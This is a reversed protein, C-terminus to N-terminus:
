AGILPRGHRDSLVQGAVTAIAGTLIWSQRRYRVFGGRNRLYGAVLGIELHHGSAALLADITAVANVSYWARREEQGGARAFRHFITVQQEVIDEPLMLPDLRVRDAAGFYPGTEVLLGRPIGEADHDFRPQNVPFTAVEGNAARADATVPRSFHFAIDFSEQGLDGSM